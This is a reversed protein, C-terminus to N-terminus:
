RIASSEAKIRAHFTEVKCDPCYNWLEYPGHFGTDVEEWTSCEKGCDMCIPAPYEFDDGEYGGNIPHTM